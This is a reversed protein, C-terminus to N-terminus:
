NNIHNFCTKGRSGEPPITNFRNFVSVFVKSVLVSCRPSTVRRAFRWLFVKQTEGNGAPIHVQTCDNSNSCSGQRQVSLFGCRLPM